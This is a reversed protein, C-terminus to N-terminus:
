PASADPSLLSKLKNLTAPEASYILRQPSEPSSNKRPTVIYEESSVRRLPVIWLDSGELRSASLDRVFVTEREISGKWVQKVALTVGNEKSSVLTGSVILSSERIQVPNLVQPRSTFFALGILSGCYLIALVVVPYFLSSQGFSQSEISTSNETSAPVSSRSM